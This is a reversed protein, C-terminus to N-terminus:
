ARGGSEGKVLATAIIHAVRLPEPLQSRTSSLAIVEEVEEDEMGVAQYYVKVGPKVECVKIPGAKKVMEWRKEFDKFNKLAAKVKELNPHKRNIVIVPLRTSEYLEQVDVINFGGLTIGDLMVVKLQQKHRSTNILKVLKKTADLGDVLVETKLAGDLFKGGRFVVGIVPVRGKKRTSFAGDDFGLIRIEEKLM